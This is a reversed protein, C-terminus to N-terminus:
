KEKEQRSKASYLFCMVRLTSLAREIYTFSM